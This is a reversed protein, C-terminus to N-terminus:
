DAAVFQSTFGVKLPLRYTQWQRKRFFIVDSTVDNSVRGYHCASADIFLKFLSLVNNNVVVM